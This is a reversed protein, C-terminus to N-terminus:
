IYIYPTVKRHTRHPELLQNHPYKPTQELMCAVLIPQLGIYKGRRDCTHSDYASAFPRASPIWIHDYTLIVIRDHPTPYIM